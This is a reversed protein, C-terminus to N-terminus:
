LYRTCITYELTEISANTTPAPASVQSSRRLLYKDKLRINCSKFVTDYVRSNTQIMHLVTLRFMNHGQNKHIATRKKRFM